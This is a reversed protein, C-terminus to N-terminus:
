QLESYEPNLEFSEGATLNSADITFILKLTYNNEISYLKYETHPELFSYFYGNLVPMIKYTSNNMNEILLTTNVQRDPTTRNLICGRVGTEKVASIYFLNYCNNNLVVKISIYTSVDIINSISISSITLNNSTTKIKWECINNNLYTAKILKGNTVNSLLVPSSPVNKFYIQLYKANINGLYTNLGFGLELMGGDPVIYPKIITSNLYSIRNNVSYYSSVKYDHKIYHVLADLYGVDIKEGNNNYDLKKESTIDYVALSSIIIIVALLIAFIKYHSKIKDLM